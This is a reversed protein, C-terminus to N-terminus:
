DTVRARARSPALAATLASIRDNKHQKTLVSKCFSLHAANYCSSLIAAYTICSFLIMLHWQIPLVVAHLVYPLTYMFSLPLKTPHFRWMAVCHYYAFMLTCCLSMLLVPQCAIFIVGHCIYNGSPWVIEGHEVTFHLTRFPVLEKVHGILTATWLNHM